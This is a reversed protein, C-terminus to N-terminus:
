CDSCNIPKNLRSHFYSTKALDVVKLTSNLSRSFLLLDHPVNLETRIVFSENIAFQEPVTAASNAPYPVGGNQDLSWAVVGAKNGGTIKIGTIKLTYGSNEYPTLISKAVNSVEKLYKKNVESQQSVIDAVASAARTTKGAITFGISLEFAGLYAMILIPAVFAFEIAGVGRKDRKLAGFAAPIAKLRQIKQKAFTKM